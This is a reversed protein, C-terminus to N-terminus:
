VNQRLDMILLRGLDVMTVGKNDTFLTFFDPPFKPLLFLKRLKTDM